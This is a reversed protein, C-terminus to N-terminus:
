NENLRIELKAKTSETLTLKKKHEELLSINKWFNLLSHIYNFVNILNEKKENKKAEKLCFGPFYAKLFATQLFITKAANKNIWNKRMKLGKQPFEVSLVSM